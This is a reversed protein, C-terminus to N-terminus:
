KKLLGEIEKYILPNDPRKANFDVLKGEQDILIFKPIGQVMYDRKIQMVKDSPAHFQHGELGEKELFALWTEMKKDVSIYLFAVDQGEFHKKLKKSHPMQRRCPGCWTAWFDMYVVQGKFDSLQVEKGTSDMVTFNSAEAGPLFKKHLNYHFNVTKQFPPHENHATFEDYKPVILAAKGKNAGIIFNAGQIFSLSHGKLRTKAFDFKDVFYKQADYKEAKKIVEENFYHHVYFDIFQAYQPITFIARNNDLNIGKLFSFFSPSYSVTDKKNRFMQLRKYPYSMLSLAHSYVIVDTMHEEFAKSIPQEKKYDSLAALQAIKTSDLYQQYRAPTYKRLIQKNQVPTNKSAFSPAVKQLFRNNNVVKGEGEFAIFEKTKIKSPDFRLDISDGPQLFIAQKEKCVLTAPVPVDLEFRIEFSGDTALTDTYKEIDRTDLPNRAIEIGVVKAQPNSILGQITVFDQAQVGFTYLCFCILLIINRM